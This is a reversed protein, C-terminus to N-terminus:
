GSCNLWATWSSAGQWHPPSHGSPAVFQATHAEMIAFSYNALNKKMKPISLDLGKHYLPPGTAPSEARIEWIKGYIAFKGKFVLIHCMEEQIGFSSKSRGIPYAPLARGSFLGCIREAGKFKSKMEQATALLLRLFFSLEVVEEPTYGM